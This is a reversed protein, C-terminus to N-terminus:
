AQFPDIIPLEPRLLGPVFSGWFDTTGWLAEGEKKWFDFECEDIECMEGAMSGAEYAKWYHSRSFLGGRQIKLTFQGGEDELVYPAFVYKSMNIDRITSIVDLLAFGGFAGIRVGGKLTPKPKGLKVNHTVTWEIQHKETAAPVKNLIEKNVKGAKIQNLVDQEASRLAENRASRLTGRGSDAINLEATVEYTTVMTDKATILKKWEHKNFRQRIEQATSGVYIAPDGKYIGEVVYVFLVTKKGKRTVFLEPLLM